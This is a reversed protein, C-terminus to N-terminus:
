DAPAPPITTGEPQRAPFITVKNDYVTIPRMESPPDALVRERQEVSRSGGKITVQQNDLEGALQVKQESLTYFQEAGEIAALAADRRALAGALEVDQVILMENLKEDIAAKVNNAKIKNIADVKAKIGAIDVEVQNLVNALESANRRADDASVYHVTKKLETLKKDVTAIQSELGPIRHSAETVGAQVEERYNKERELEARAIGDLWEVLAEAMLRADQESVAPLTYRSTGLISSAGTGFPGVIDNPDKRSAVLRAVLLKQKESLQQGTETKLIGEELKPLGRDKVIHIVAACTADPYTNSVLDQPEDSVQFQLEGRPAQMEEALVTSGILLVCVAVCTLLRGTTLM